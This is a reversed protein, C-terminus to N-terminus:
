SDKSNEWLSEAQTVSVGVANWIQELQSDSLQGQEYLDVAGNLFRVLSVAGQIYLASSAM